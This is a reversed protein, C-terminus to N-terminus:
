NKLTKNVKFFFKVKPFKGTNSMQCVDFAVDPQTQTSLWIMQGTLRRLETKEKNKRLSSGKKIDISSISSVYLNQNIIIGDKTQRVGLGLLQFMRSGYM